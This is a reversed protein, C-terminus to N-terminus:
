LIKKQISIVSDSKSYGNTSPSNTASESITIEVRRNQAMNEPTSNDTVPRMSGFGRFILNNEPLGSQIMKNGVSLARASSLYWNSPFVATQIPASDTHGDITIQYQIGILIKALSDLMRLGDPQVDARSSEFLLKEPLTLTIGTASLKVKLMGNQILSKFSKETESAIQELTKSSAHPLIPEPINDRRGELIGDGKSPLRDTPNFYESFAGSFKKYKEEDVKSVSYLIVFLGLLLTILDAYTILYRDTHIVDEQHNRKNKFRM